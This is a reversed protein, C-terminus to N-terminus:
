IHTWSKRQVIFQITTPHVGYRHAMESATALGKAVKDRIDLVQETTLTSMYHDEGQAYGGEQHRRQMRKTQNTWYLNNLQVNYINGDKFGVHTLSPDTNPKFAKMVSRHVYVNTYTKPGLRAHFMLYHPSPRVNVSVYEGKKNKKRVHGLNSIEYEPADEVKKWIEKKM